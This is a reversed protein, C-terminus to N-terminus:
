TDNLFNLANTNYKEYLENYKESLSEHEACLKDYRLELEDLRHHLECEVASIRHPVIKGGSVSVFGVNYVKGSDSIFSAQYSGDGFQPVAAKDRIYFSTKGVTLTGSIASEIVSTDYGCIVSTGNKFVHLRM